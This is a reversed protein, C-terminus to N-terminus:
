PNFKAASGWAGAGGDPTDSLLNKFKGDRIDELLKLVAAQEKERKEPMSSLRNYLWCVALTRWMRKLADARVLFPDIYLRITGLAEQISTAVPEPQGLEILNNSLGDLEERSIVALLDTEVLEV